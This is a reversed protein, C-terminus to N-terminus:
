SSWEIVSTQQFYRRAVADHTEACMRQLRRLLQPLDELAEDVHLFELEARLRGLRRRALDGSGARASRPALEGLRDAATALAHYVSRPFLRDLLLFEVAASAHVAQQYTRVYAEYAGCTRLTTTWGSQGFADGYRASLLRTTMDARELSRGLVLFGWGDDRSMTADVIGNCTAARGRVWRFFDHRAPGTSLEARRPLERYTSNLEEWLESSVADRAGRANEWGAAFSRTISGSFTPDQTLLATVTFADPEPGILEPDVGMADLLARCVVQEDAHLDELLLHYHVDLLRATDEAREVYRGIWYLSEAIRSLV